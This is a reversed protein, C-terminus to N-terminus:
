ASGNRGRRRAMFGVALLGGFMLAWTGPEPVPTIVVGGVGTGPPTTTGGGPVTGGGPPTTTGGGPTGGTTPPVVITTSGSPGIPSAFIPGYAVDGFAPGGTPVTVVTEPKTGGEPTSGVQNSSTGTPPTSTKANNVTSPPEGTRNIRSVNRCVTPVLVCHAGECYVLGRETTTAKWKKRTVTKCVTGVPGFHMDRIVTSYRGKGVIADRRIEVMDDYQQMAVREKLRNRVDLPIDTYRDLAAPLEGMYPNANPRDWACSALTQAAPKKVAAKAKAAQAPMTALSAALVLGLLALPMLRRPARLPHSFHVTDMRRNDTVHLSQDCTEGHNFRQIMALEVNIRRVLTNQLLWSFPRHM